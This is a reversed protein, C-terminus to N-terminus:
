EQEFRRWFKLMEIYVVPIDTLEEGFRTTVTTRLNTDQTDYHHRTDGTLTTHFLRLEARQGSNMLMHYYVEITSAPPTIPDEICGFFKIPCKCHAHLSGFYDLDFEWMKDLFAEKEDDNTPLDNVWGFLPTCKIWKNWNDFFIPKESDVYGSQFAFGDPLVFGCHTAWFTKREASSGFSTRAAASNPCAAIVPIPCEDRTLTIATGGGMSRGELFVGDRKINYHEIVWKYAAVYCDMAQPMSFHENIDNFPNGEVDMVAYGEALWYGAELDQPEFRPYDQSSTSTHGYGYQNYNVGAGHCHIILRTPEGTNTYTAPLRLCGYDTLLEGNDQVDNSDNDCCLPDTVWVRAIVTQSGYKSNNIYHQSINYYDWKEGFRGNLSLRVLPINSASADMTDSVMLKVYTANAPNIAVAENANAPYDTYGIFLFDSTYKFVRIVGNIPISATFAGNVKVFRMTSVFKFGQDTMNHKGSSNTIHEYGMKPFITRTGEGTIGLNNRVTSKQEDSTPPVIGYLQARSADTNLSSVYLTTAGKPCVIYDTLFNSVEGSALEGYQIKAGYEDVFLYGVYGSTAPTRGKIRYIKGEQVSYSYARYSTSIPDVIEGTYFLSNELVDSESLAEEGIVLSVAHLVDNLSNQEAKKEIAGAKAIRLIELKQNTYDSSGHNLVVYGNVESVITSDVIGGTQNVSQNSTITTGIAPKATTFGVRFGKNSGDNDATVKIIDGSKVPVWWCHQKSSATIVSVDNTTANKIRTLTQEQLEGVTDTVGKQSMAKTNDQGTTHALVLGSVDEIPQFSEGQPGVPGQPMQYEVGNKYIKKITAM